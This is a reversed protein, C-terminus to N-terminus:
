RLCAAMSLFRDRLNCIKAACQIILFKGLGSPDSLVMQDLDFNCSQDIWTRSLTPVPEVSSVSSEKVTDQWPSSLEPVPQSKCTCQAVFTSFEQELDSIRMEFERVKSELENIYTRTRERAQRQSKRDIERKRQLQEPSLFDISRMKAKAADSM